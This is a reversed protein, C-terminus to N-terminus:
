CGTKIPQLFNYLLSNTKQNLTDSTNVKLEIELVGNKGKEGYKDTAHKDKLVTISKIRDPNIDDFNDNAEKGDVIVM